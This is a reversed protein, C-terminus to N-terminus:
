LYYNLRKRALDYFAITICSVWTFVIALLISSVFGSLIKLLPLGFINLGVFWQRPLGLSMDLVPLKSNIHFITQSTLYLIASASALSFFLSVPGQKTKDAYKMTLSEWFSRWVGKQGELLLVPSVSCLVIAVIHFLALQAGLAFVIQILVTLLLIKAADKYSSKTIELHPIGSEGKMTRLNSKTLTTYGVCFSVLSILWFISFPALFAKLQAPLGASLDSTRTYNQSTLDWMALSTNQSMYSTILYIAFQPLILWILSIHLQQRLNTRWIQHATSLIKSSTIKLEKSNTM